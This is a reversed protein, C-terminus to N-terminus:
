LVVERQRHEFQYWGGCSRSARFQPYWFRVGTEAGGTTFDHLHHLKQIALRGRTRIVFDQNRLIREQQWPPWRTQYAASANPAFSTLRQVPATASGPFRLSCGTFPWHVVDSTNVAPRIVRIELPQESCRRVPPIEPSIRCAAAVWGTQPLFPPFIPSSIVATVHFISAISICIKNGTIRRRQATLSSLYKDRRVPQAACLCRNQPFAFSPRCAVGALAICRGVAKSLSFAQGGLPPCRIRICTWSVERGVARQTRIRYRCCRRAKGPHNQLRRPALQMPQHIMCPAAQWRNSM